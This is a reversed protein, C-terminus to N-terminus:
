DCKHQLMETPTLIDRYGCVRCKCLYYISRNPKILKYACKIIDFSNLTSGSVVGSGTVRLTPHVVSGLNFRTYSINKVIVGDDFQIDLNSGNLGIIKIGIGCKAYGREGILNTKDLLRSFRKFDGLKFTDYRMHQFIKGDEFKVDIDNANRFGVIEAEFGDKSVRKIGLYREATNMKKHSVLGKKFATYTCNRKSGDDFQVVVNDSCNYEVITMQLGKTNFGKEGLHMSKCCSINYKLRGSKFSRYEKHKLLVGNDLRVDIDSATRYAVIKMNMQYIENFVEEGLRINALYTNSFRPMICNPNRVTGSLFRQYNVNQVLTGDEFRVTVNKYSTYEILEMNQGNTALVKENLHLEKNLNRFFCKSFESVPNCYGNIFNSFSFTCNVKFNNNIYVDFDCFNRFNLVSVIWGNSLNFAKRYNEFVFDLSTDNRYYHGVSRCLSKFSLDRYFLGSSTLFSVTDGEKYLILANFNNKKIILGFHLLISINGNILYNNWAKNEYFGVIEKIHNVVYIYDSTNSLKGAEFLRIFRNKVNIYVESLFRNLMIRNKDLIFNLLVSNFNNELYNLINMFDNQFDCNYRKMEIFIEQSLDILDFDFKYM